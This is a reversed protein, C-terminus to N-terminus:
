SKAQTLLRDFEEPTLIGSHEFILDGKKFIMLTPVSRIQFAQALDTAVETNVSGFFIEPHIEAMLQFAPAFVKCPQCWEAWFDLVVVSNEDVITEFNQFDVPHVQGGVRM